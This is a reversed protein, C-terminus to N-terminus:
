TNKYNLDNISSESIASALVAKREKDRNRLEQKKDQTKQLQIELYDLTKNLQKKYNNIYAEYHNANYLAFASGALITIIRKIKGASFAAGLLGGVATGITAMAGQLGLSLLSKMIVQASYMKSPDSGQVRKLENDAERIANKCLAIRDKIQRADSYRDARFFGLLKIMLMNIMERIKGIPIGFFDIGMTNKDMGFDAEDVADLDCEDLASFSELLDFKASVYDEGMEPYYSEAVIGPIMKDRILEYHHMGEMYSDLDESLRSEMIFKCLFDVNSIQNEEALNLISSEKMYVTHKDEMCVIHSTDTNMVRIVDKIRNGEGSGSIGYKFSM